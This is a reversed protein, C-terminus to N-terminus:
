KPPGFAKVDLGLNFQLDNAKRANAELVLRGNELFEVRRPLLLRQTQGVPGKGTGLAHFDFRFSQSAKDGTAARDVGYLKHDAAGILLHLDAEGQKRRVLTRVAIDEAPDGRKITTAPGAFTFTVGDGDLRQLFFIDLMEETRRLEEKLTRLDDKLAPNEM